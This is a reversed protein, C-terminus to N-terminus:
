TGLIRLDMMGITSNTDISRSAQRFDPSYSSGRKLFPQVIATSRLRIPQESHLVIRV